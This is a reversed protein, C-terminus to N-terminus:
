PRSAPISIVSEAADTSGGASSSQDLVASWTVARAHAGRSRTGTFTAAIGAAGPTLQMTGRYRYRADRWSPRCTAGGPVSACRYVLGRALRHTGAAILRRVVIRATTAALPPPPLAAPPPAVYPARAAPPQPPDPPPAPVVTLSRVPGAYIEGAHEYSAQWHYTAPISLWQAVLATRADYIDPFDRRPIAEYRDVVNAALLLGRADTAPSTAVAVDFDYPAEAYDSTYITFSAMEFPTAAPWSSAPRTQGDRPVLWTGAPLPEAHQASAPAALAGTLMAILLVIRV